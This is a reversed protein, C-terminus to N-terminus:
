HNYHAETLLISSPPPHKQTSENVAMHRFDVEYMLTLTDPMRQVKFPLFKWSKICILLYQLKHIKKLHSVISLSFFM